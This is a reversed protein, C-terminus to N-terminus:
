YTFRLGGMFWRGPMKAGLINAYEVDQINNMQLSVSLNKSINLGLIANLLLYSEELQEDIGPAFQEARDKYLATLGIQFVEHNVFMKANILNKAHSSIYVSIEEADNSTDLYTYGLSTNLGLGTGLQTNYQVELEIGNTQVDSINQAFFYNEGTQLSGIGNIDSENKLVYDILASSQRAFITGKIMLQPNPLFDFGLEESWSEEASLNPNGLSRGPSLNMLNNSVYRETYDAARISRGASARLVLKDLTYSANLQPSLEFDFNDDYDARLSLSASLKDNPLFHGMIYAGYHSDEHDGRDNSEITRKDFQVGAKIRWMENLTLDHNITVNLFDTVHENTSPFDPSFIFLDTNYKYAVNFDSISKDGIKSLKFHSWYNQTTEISKDFTSTTYFYRASFNRHDYALRAAATLGNSFKKSFSLGATKIDFYNSYSSLTTTEDIVKEAIEEGISRTINLGGGVKLGEKNISFGSSSKVLQRDGFMLEGDISDDDNNQSSFTKTKINIVGGVADPGFMAAAPGRLIEISHIESKSVPINGNFHATLPDNMKMGDILVLVQNFTSGRLLIDAQAGFGNRSQVELGTVTQLIEDLSNAPIQNLDKSTIISINRGTQNLKMPINSSSVLVTDLVGSQAFLSISIFM